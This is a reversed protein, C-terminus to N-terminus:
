YGLSGGSSFGFNGISFGSEANTITPTGSQADTRTFNWQGTVFGAMSAPSSVLGFMLAFVLIRM